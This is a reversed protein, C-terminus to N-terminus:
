DKTLLGQQLKVMAALEEFSDYYLEHVLYDPQILDLLRKIRAQAWPEHKDICAIHLPVNGADKKDPLKRKLGRLYEGSLSSSLHIGKIKNRVPGLKGITECIYGLAEQENQLHQNTNMLHGTDLMIGTNEGEILSFFKEAIKRDTLRLGPWWLNEFLVTVQQPVISRVANYVEAAAEVVEEDTYKFAFTFIEEDDSESIHWVLYEPEEKLALRINSRIAELWEEKNGAGQYFKRLEHESAFKSALFENRDHWLDLWYPWFKLHVGMTTNVYTQAFPENQYIYLEIGDLGTQQLYSGIEKDTLPIDSEYGPIPCYNILQKM